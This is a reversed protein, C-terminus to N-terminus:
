KKAKSSQKRHSRDNAAEDATDGREPKVIGWYNAIAEQFEGALQRKSEKRNNNIAVLEEVKKVMVQKHAEAAAPGGPITPRQDAASSGPPAAAAHSTPPPTPTLVKVGRRGDDATPPPTTGSSPGATPADNSEPALPPATARIGNHIFGGNAFVGEHGRQQMNAPTPNAMPMMRAGPEDEPRLFLKGNQSYPLFVGKRNALFRDRSEKAKTFRASAEDVVPQNKGATKAAKAKAKPDQEQEEGQRSWSAKIAIIQEAISNDEKVDVKATSAHISLAYAIGTSATAVSGPRPGTFEESGTAEPNTKLAEQLEGQQKLMHAEQEECDKQYQYVVHERRQEEWTQTYKSDLTCHVAYTSASTKDPAPALNLHHIFTSGTGTRREIEKENHFLQFVFPIGLQERVRLQISATGAEAVTFNYRFLSSQDNHVYEGTKTVTEEFARQEFTEFPRDATSQLRWLGKGYEEPPTATAVITYGGKNPELVAGLIKGITDRYVVATTDMNVIVLSAYEMIPRDHPADDIDDAGNEGAGANDAGGKGPAGGKAPKAPAKGKAAAATEVALQRYQALDTGKPLTSLMLNCTTKQKVTIHRKFWITTFDAKCESFVGADSSTTVELLDRCIEKEDGLTIEGPAMISFACDMPLNEATFRYARPGPPVNLTISQSTGQFVKMKNNFIFPCSNNWNYSEVVLTTPGFPTTASDDGDKSEKHKALGIYNVLLTAATESNVYLWKVVSKPQGREQLAALQQPTPQAAAAGKGSPAKTEPIPPDPPCTIQRHIAYRRDATNRLLVVSSFYRAFQEWPMWFDFWKRSLDQQNRDNATFGIIGEVDSWANSGYHFQGKWSAGPACLRVLSTNSYPRMDMLTFAQNPHFGANAVYNEETDTAPTEPERSDGPTAILLNEATGGAGGAARAAMHQRITRLTLLEDGSPSMIQPSWGCLLTTVVWTPNRFLLAEHQPGLAKMMAKALLAPWVEKQETVTLLCQGSPDTPLRDDIIIRRFAGGVFLKVAYKGTPNYLPFGTTPQQPHILEWAYQGQPIVHQHQNLVMLASNLVRMFFPAQAQARGVKKTAHRRSPSASASAGPSGDANTDETPPLRVPKMARYHQIVEARTTLKPLDEEEHQGNTTGALSANVVAEGKSPDFDYPSTTISLTPRFVVPKFPSFIASPRKWDGLWPALTAVSPSSWDPDVFLSNPDIHGTANLDGWQEKDNDADDWLPLACSEVFLPGHPTEVAPAGKAAAGKTPAAKKPAMAFDQCSLFFFLRM